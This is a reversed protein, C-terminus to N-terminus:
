ATSTTLAWWSEGNADNNVGDEEMRKGARRRIEEEVYLGQKGKEGDVAGKKIRDRDASEATLTPAAQHEPNISQAPHLM